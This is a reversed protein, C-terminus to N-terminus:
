RAAQVAGAADRRGGGSARLDVSFGHRRIPSAVLGLLSADPRVPTPTPTTHMEM